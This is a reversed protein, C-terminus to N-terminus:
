VNTPTGAYASIAADLATKILDLNNNKPQSITKTANQISTNLSQKQNDSIVGYGQMYANLLTNLKSAANNESESLLENIYSSIASTNQEALSKYLDTAQSSRIMNRKSLPNIIDNELSKQSQTNLYNTYANLKSQNTTSDITPNLYENLLSDINKNVFNYISNLATGDQFTIRTGTNDTNSIVYPNATTTNGLATNQTTKASTKGM